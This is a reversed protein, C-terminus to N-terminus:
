KNQVRVFISVPQSCGQDPGVRSQPAVQKRGAPVPVSSSSPNGQRESTGQSLEIYESGGSEQRSPPLSFRVDLSGWLHSKLSAMNSM